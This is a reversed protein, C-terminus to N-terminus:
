ASFSRGSENKAFSFRMFRMRTTGVV